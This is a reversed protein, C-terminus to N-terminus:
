GTSWARAGSKLSLWIAAASSWRKALIRGVM